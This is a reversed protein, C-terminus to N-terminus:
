KLETIYPPTIRVNKSESPSNLPCLSDATKGHSRAYGIERSTSQGVHGGPNIVKYNNQM